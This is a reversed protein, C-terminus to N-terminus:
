LRLSPSQSNIISKLGAGWLQIRPDPSSNYDNDAVIPWGAATTYLRRPDKKKWFDVFNTLYQVYNKGAPENGYTMMCFSPHNGYAKVIRESEDYIYQDLPNGDGITAGQNAWSSCEIQLYFGARDAAEFAAEPPCWSHFRLHNLGYSRCKKFVKMWSEMDTPPYGTLPFAACELTGRLFTLHGNITFQTGKTSFDRMGFDVKKDGANGNGELSIKLSYLNPHFEDWLLPNNGMPYVIDLDMSDGKVDISKKLEKLKEAKPNNSLASLELNANMPKGSINNIHIHAVVQKKQIDPYLQVDDIYLAPRTAIYLKGVM